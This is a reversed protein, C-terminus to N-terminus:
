AANEKSEQVPPTTGGMLLYPCYHIGNDDLKRSMRCYRPSAQTLWVPRTSGIAAEFLARGLGLRKFCGKVQIWHVVNPPRFVIAGYVHNDDEPEHAIAVRSVALLSHILAQQMPWYVDKPVFRSSPASRMESCWGKAIFPVDGVRAARLGHPVRCTM